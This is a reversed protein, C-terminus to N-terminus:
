TNLENEPFNLTLIIIKRWFTNCECDGHKWTTKLINLLFVLFFLYFFFYYAYFLFVLFATSWNNPFCVFFRGLGSSYPQTYVNSRAYIEWSVTSTLMSKCLATHNKFM